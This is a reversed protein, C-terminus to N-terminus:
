AVSLHPAPRRPTASGPAGADRGAPAPRAARDLHYVLEVEGVPVRLAQAVHWPSQGAALLARAEDRWPVGAPSRADSSSRLRVTREAAIPPASPEAIPAPAPAAQEVRKLREDLRASAREVRAEVSAAFDELRQLLEEMSGRMADQERLAAREARTVERATAARDRAWRYWAVAGLGGALAAVGVFTAWDLSRMLDAPM